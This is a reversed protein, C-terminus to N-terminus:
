KAFIDNSFGEKVRSALTQVIKMESIQELPGNELPHPGLALNPWLFRVLASGSPQQLGSAKSEVRLEHNLLGLLFLPKVPSIKMAFAPLM